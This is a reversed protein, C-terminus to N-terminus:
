SHVSASSVSVTCCNRTGQYQLMFTFINLHIFFPTHFLRSKRAKKEGDVEQADVPQRAHDGHQGATVSVQAENGRGREGEGEFFVKMWARSDEPREIVVAQCWPGLQPSRPLRLALLRDDFLHM